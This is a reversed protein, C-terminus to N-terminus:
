FHRCRVMGVVAGNILLKYAGFLKAQSTGGHPLSAGYDNHALRADPQAYPSLQATVFAVASTIPKAPATFETRAMTFDDAILKGSAAAAWIPAATAALDTPVALLPSPGTPAQSTATSTAVLALMALVGNPLM